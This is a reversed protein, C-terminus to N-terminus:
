YDLYHGFKEAKTRYLSKVEDSPSRHVLPALEVHIGAESLPRVKQPNNTLLRVARIQKDLLWQAVPGYERSDPDVGLHVRSEFTDMGDLELQTAAVKASLGAGRGDVRLYFLIGGGENRFTSMAARLQASCDCLSSGLLEGFVCESNVRVLPNSSTVADGFVVVIDGDVAESFFVSEVTM